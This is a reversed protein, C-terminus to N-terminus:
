KKAIIRNQFRVDIMKYQHEGITPLVSLNFEKIKFFKEDINSCNGLLVNTKGEKHILEIENNENVYLQAYLSQCVTDEVITKAITHLDQILQPQKNIQDTGSNFEPIHGNAIILKENVKSSFPLKNGDWDIFCSNGNQPFLQILLKRLQLNISLQSGSRSLKCEKVYPHNSLLQQIEDLQLEKMKIGVVKIKNNELLSLVEQEDVIKKNGSYDIAIRIGSCSENQKKVIVFIGLVLICAVVVINFVLKIRSM